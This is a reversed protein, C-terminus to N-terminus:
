LSNEKTGKRQLLVWMKWRSLNPILGDGAPKHGGGAGREGKPHYWWLAGAPFSRSFASKPPTGGDGWVWLM